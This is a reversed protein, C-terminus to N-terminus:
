RPLTRSAGRNAADAEGALRKLLDGRVEAVQALPHGRHKRVEESTYDKFTAPLPEDCLNRAMWNLLAATEADSLPSQAVGPVTLVFVRGEPMGSLPILTSRFSPVRDSQGSGDALHCGQCQLQYNVRPEYCHGARPMAVFAIALAAARAQM